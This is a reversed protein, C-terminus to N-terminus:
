SSSVCYCAIIRTRFLLLLRLLSRVALAPRAEILTEAHNKLADLEPLLAQPTSAKAHKAIAAGVVAYDDYGALLRRSLLLLMRHCRYAILARRSESFCFMHYCRYAILARRSESFCFM